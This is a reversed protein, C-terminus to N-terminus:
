FCWADVDLLFTIIVNGNTFEEIGEKNQSSWLWKIYNVICLDFLAQSRPLVNITTIFLESVGHELHVHAM